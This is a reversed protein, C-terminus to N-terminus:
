CDDQLLFFIRMVPTKKLDNLFILFVEEYPLTCHKLFLFILFYELPSSVFTLFKSFVESLNFPHSKLVHMTLELGLYSVDVNGQKKNILLAQSM